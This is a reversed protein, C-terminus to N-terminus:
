WTFTRCGENTPCPANVPCDEDLCVPDCPPIVDTCGGSALIIDDSLEVVDVTPKIYKEKKM